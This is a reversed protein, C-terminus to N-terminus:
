APLSASQYNQTLFEAVGERVQDATTLCDKIFKDNMYFIWPKGGSESKEFWETWNNNRIAEDFKKREQMPWEFGHHFMRNRYAFLASLITIYEDPLFKTLGTSVSLQEIGKVIDKRPSGRHFVFHPDWFCDDMIATRHDSTQGAEQQNERLENFISVFLSEIFPALMGVASMSHAASQFVSHHLANVRRDQLQDSFEGTSSRGEAGLNEIQAALHGDAQRNRRIVDKIASLHDERNCRHILFPMGNRNSIASAPPNETGLQPLIDDALGFRRNTHLVM